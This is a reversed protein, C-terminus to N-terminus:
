INILGENNNQKIKVQKKIPQKDVITDEKHEDVKPNITDDVIENIEKLVKLYYDRDQINIDLDFALAKYKEELNQYDNQWACKENELNDYLKSLKEKNEFLENYTDQLVKYAQDKSDIIKKSDEFKQKYNRLQEELEPVKTNIVESEFKEQEKYQVELKRYKEIWEDRASTVKKVEENSQNFQLQLTEVKKSLNEKETALANWKKVDIVEATPTRKLEENEKTLAEIQAKQEHLKSKLEAIELGLSKSAEFVENYMIQLDDREKTLQEIQAKQERFFKAANNLRETLKENASQLELIKDNDM